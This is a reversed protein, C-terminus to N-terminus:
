EDSVGSTLDEWEWDRLPDPNLEIERAVRGFSEEDALIEGRPDSVVKGRIRPADNTAKDVPDEIFDDNFTPLKIKRLFDLISM